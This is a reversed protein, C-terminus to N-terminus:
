FLLKGTRVEPSVLLIGLFNGFLSFRYLIHERNPVLKLFFHFVTMHKKFQRPFPSIFLYFLLKFLTGSPNLLLNSLKFELPHQAALIIKIIGNDANM